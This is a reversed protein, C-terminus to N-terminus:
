QDFRKLVADRHNYLGEFDAIAAIKNKEKELANRDYICISSKKLFDYVSLPSSFRANGDTPIVHNTGAIYDGVVVPTYSGIFIAGANRINKIIYDPDESVIELHEPAINNCAEILLDIESSYFIRCFEGMSRLVIEVNKEYATDQKLIELRVNIAEVVRRATEKSKSLFISRSFPDHEAQSILDLAIFDARASDDAIITIDSPGALCDIGVYGNVIRKAAAVYINGPGTIKDVKKINETGYAMAAIAQAGGAKYIEHIDMIGFLYLLIDDLKGNRGPPSFVAIEKVGAIIAPIATMLVTSPYIYRGGPVYLGAREIPTIKQGLKRGPGFEKLWPKDGNKLQFRHYQEINEMSSALAATLDPFERRFRKVASSIEDESVFIDKIDNLDLGDFKRVYEILARDGNRRVEKLIINVKSIVEPSIDEKDYLYRSIDGPSKLEEIKLSIVGM